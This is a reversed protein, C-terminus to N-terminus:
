EDELDRKLGRLATALSWVREADDGDAETYSFSLRLRITLPAIQDKFIRLTRVHKVGWEADSKAIAIVEDILELLRVRQREPSDPTAEVLDVWERITTQIAKFFTPHSPDRTPGGYDYQGALSELRSTLKAIEYDTPKM